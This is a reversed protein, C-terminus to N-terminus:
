ARVAGAAVLDGLDRRRVGAHVARQPPSQPHALRHPFQALANVAAFTVIVAIAAVAAVGAAGVAPRGRAMGVAFALVGPIIWLLWPDALSAAVEVLHLVRRPIPLLLLRNYRTLSTQSPVLIAFLALVALM